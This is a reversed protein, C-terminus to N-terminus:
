AARKIIKMTDATPRPKVIIKDGARSTLYNLPHNPTDWPTAGGWKAKTYDESRKYGVGKDSYAVMPHSQHLALTGTDIVLKGTDLVCRGVFDSDEFAMGKLYEEDFGGVRNFLAKSIGLFWCMPYIRSGGNWEMGTDADYVRPTYVAKDLDWVRASGMANPPLTTDSSLFFLNDGQALAAARNNVYAPNNHGDINYTDPRDEMTSICEWRVPPIQWDAIIERVDDYDQTSGDDVVLIETDTLDQKSISVFTNLLTLEPRNYVTLIITDRCPM